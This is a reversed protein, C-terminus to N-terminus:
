PKGGSLRAARRFLEILAGYACQMAKLTRFKAVIEYRGDPSSDSTVFGQDFAMLAGIEEWLEANEAELTSLKAQLATILAKLGDLDSPQLLVVEVIDSWDRPPMDKIANWCRTASPSDSGKRFATHIGEALYQRFWEQEDKSSVRWGPEPASSLTSLAAKLADSIADRQMGNYKDVEAQDQGDNPTIEGWGLSELAADVMAETVAVPEAERKPPRSNLADAKAKAVSRDWMFQGNSGGAQDYSYRGEQWAAEIDAATLELKAQEENM